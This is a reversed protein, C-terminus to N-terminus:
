KEIKVALKVARAPVPLVLGNKFDSRKDWLSTRGAQINTTAATDWFKVSKAADEFDDLVVVKKLLIREKAVQIWCFLMM